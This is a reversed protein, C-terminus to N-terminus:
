RDEAMKQINPWETAVLKPFFDEEEVGTVRGGTYPPYGDTTIRWFLVPIRALGGTAMGSYRQDIAITFARGDHMITRTRSREHEPILDPM